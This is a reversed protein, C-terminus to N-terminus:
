GDQDYGRPRYDRSKQRPNKNPRQVEIIPRRGTPFSNNQPRAAQALSAANDLLWAKAEALLERADDISTDVDVTGNPEIFIRPNLYSTVGERGQRGTRISYKPHNHSSRTIVVAVDGKSLTLIPTWTIESQRAQENVLLNRPEDLQDESM